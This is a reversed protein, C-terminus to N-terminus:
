ALALFAMGIAAGVFAEGDAVVDCSFGLDSSENEARSLYYAAYLTLGNLAHSVPPLWGLLAFGLVAIALGANVVHLMTRTASFGFRVPITAVGEARDGVVDGLDFFVTNVFMKVTTFALAIIAVRESAADALVLPLLGAGSGWALAVWVSKLVTVEKIKRMGRPTPVVPLTYLIAGIFPSLYLLVALVGGRACLVGGGVLGAVAAAILLWRYRAIFASREPDNIADQPDLRACKDFTYAAFITTFAPAVLGFTPSVGALLCAMVAFGLGSLAIIVNAYALRLLLSRM